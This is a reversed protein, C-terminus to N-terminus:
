HLFWGLLDATVHAIGPAAWTGTNWRLAGLWAGVALDLPVSGWGYLPVHLVAFLVTSVVVATVPGRVRQLQDYLAGRLLAEEALAVVVVPLAWGGFGGIPLHTRQGTLAHVLGPVCLVAGGLLGIGLASLRLETRLGGLLALVTLVAAFLVGAQASQAVAPGGVAVRLAVAALFGIILLVPAPWGRSRQATATM